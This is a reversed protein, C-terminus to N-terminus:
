PEGLIVQLARKRERLQREQQYIRGLEIFAAEEKSVIREGGHRAQLHLLARTGVVSKGAADFAIAREVNIQHTDRSPATYANLMAVSVKEGLLYTMREAIRERDVGSERCRDLAQSMTHAIEISCAGSGPAVGDAENFLDSTKSDHRSM